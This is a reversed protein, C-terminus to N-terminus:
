KSNRKRYILKKAGILCGNIAMLTNKRGISNFLNNKLEKIKIIFERNGKWHKLIIEEDVSDIIKDLLVLGIGIDDMKGIVPISDPIIDVPLLVYTIALGILIKTKKDVKEDRMLSYLLNTIDPLVMIYEGFDRYDEPIKEIADCRAKSYGTDETVVAEDKVEDEKLKDKLEDLSLVDNKDKYILDEVYVEANNEFLTIHKLTFEILPIYKCLKKFDIFLTKKEVTLGMYEFSKLVKKLIYNALGTCIRLVGVKVKFVRLKLVNDDISGLGLTVQFNFKIGKKYSGKVEILEGIKINYINLEKINLVEELITLIDKETVRVKVNSINM